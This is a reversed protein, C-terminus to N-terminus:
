GCPLVHSNSYYKAFDKDVTSVFGFISEKKGPVNHFVDMGVIMTPLNNFPM